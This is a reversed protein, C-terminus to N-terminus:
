FDPMHQERGGMPHHLAKNKTNSKKSNMGGKNQGVEDGYQHLPYHDECLSMPTSFREDMEQM